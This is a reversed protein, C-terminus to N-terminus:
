PASLVSLHMDGEGGCVIRCSGITFAQPLFTSQFSAGPQWSAPDETTITFSGKGLNAELAEFDSTITSPPRTACPETLVQTVGTAPDIWWLPALTRLQYAAARAEVTWFQGVTSDDLMAVREGVNTAADQLITSALIGGANQYAQASLKKPWGGFGGFLRAKYQGAFSGARLTSCTLVLNGITLVQPGSFIGPLALEVDAVFAGYYPTQVDVAVVRAGNLDLYNLAAM